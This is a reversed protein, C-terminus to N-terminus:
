GFLLFFGDRVQALFIEACTRPLFGFMIEVFIATRHNIM